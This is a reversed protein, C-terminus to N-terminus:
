QQNHSSIGFLWIIADLGLSVECKGDEQRLRLLALM